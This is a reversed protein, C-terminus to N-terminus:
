AVPLIAREFLKKEAERRRTLGPSEKGGAKNWRLFQEPVESIKGSNLLACLTSRSFATGGINFVLSVLADFQYQTIPVTVRNNIAHVAWDVDTTFKKEAEEQTIVMGEKVGATSGYGITWV